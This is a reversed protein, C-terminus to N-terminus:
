TRKIEKYDIINHTRREPFIVCDKYHHMQHTENRNQRAHICLVNFWTDTLLLQGGRPGAMSRLSERMERPVLVTQFASAASRPWLAGKSPPPAAPAAVFVDGVVGGGAADHRRLVVCVCM